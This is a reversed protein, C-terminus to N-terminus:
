YSVNLSPAKKFLQISQMIDDVNIQKVRDKDVEIPSLQASSSDSLEESSDQSM